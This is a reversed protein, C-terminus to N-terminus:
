SIIKTRKNQLQEYKNYTYDPHKEYFMNVCKRNTERGKESDYHRKNYIAKKEKPTLIIQEDM